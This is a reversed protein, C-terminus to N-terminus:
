GTYTDESGHIMLFMRLTLCLFIQRALLDPLGQASCTRLIQSDFRNHGNLLSSLCTPRPVPVNIFAYM